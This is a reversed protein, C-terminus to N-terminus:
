NETFKFKLVILISGCSTNIISSLILPTISFNVGFGMWMISSTILLILVGWSLDKLHHTNYARILEPIFTLASLISATFGVFNWFVNQM